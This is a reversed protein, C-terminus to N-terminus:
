KGSLEQMKRRAAPLYRNVDSQWQRDGSYGTSDGVLKLRNNDDVAFVATYPVGGGRVPIRASADRNRYQDVHVFIAKGKLREELQPLTHADFQDCGPCGRFGVKAILPLGYKRSAAIAADLENGDYATRKPLEVAERTERNESPRVAERHEVPRVASDQRAAAAASLSKQIEAAGMPKMSLSDALLKGIDDSKMNRRLLESHVPSGEALMSPDIKIGAKLIDLGAKALADRKVPDSENESQRLTTIGLEARLRAPAKALYETEKIEKKLAACATYKEVSPVVDGLGTKKPAQNLDENYATDAAKLDRSLSEMRRGLMEPRVQDACAITAVYADRFQAPHENPNINRAATRQGTLDATLKRVDEASLDGTKAPSPSPPKILDSGGPSFDLYGAGRGKGVPESPKFEDKESAGPHAKRWTQYDAFDKPTLWQSLDKEPVPRCSNDDCITVAKDSIPKVHVDSM